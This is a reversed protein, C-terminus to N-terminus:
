KEEESFLKKEKLEIVRVPARAPFLGAKLLIRQGEPGGLFAVFSSAIGMRPERNLAWVARLMPYNGPRIYGSLPPYYHKAGTGAVWLVRVDQRYIQATSDRVNCVWSAGILGIARVNRQVYSLTAPLSDARYLKAQPTQGALLSDQLYRYLSSGGGGEVVFSYPAETTLLWARLSDLRCLSDSRNPHVVLAIGDWAIHTKKPHIKAEMLALSEVEAFPRCVVVASFSDAVWGGIAQEQPLYQVQLRAKPYTRRFIEVVQELAPRLTVDVAIKAEGVTPSSRESGRCGALGLILVAKALVLWPGKGVVVSFRM